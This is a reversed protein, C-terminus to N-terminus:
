RVRELTINGMILSNGKGTKEIQVTVSNDQATLGIEGMGADERFTDTASHTDRWDSVLRQRQWIRFRAGAPTEHFSMRLRYRGEPIGNLMVRLRGGSETSLRLGRDNNIQIDGEPTIEMLQPYFVHRDPFHERLLDGAPQMRSVPATDSYYFAISTYDVPYCNNVDGHEIGHFIDRDFTLKDSKDLAFKAARLFHWLGKQISLRGLSSVITHGQDKLMAIYQYNQRHFHYNDHLFGEDLANYGVSIRELPIHYREHILHRTADSVAIIQDAMALAEAEIAHILPNGGRMGSRDFETAHVHAVLPLGFKRKALMGAEFTLWDHAHVVDPLPQTELYETVYECYNHQIDRISWTQGTPTPFKPDAITASDYATGGYRFLPDINVANLVRMFKISEHKAAYPVVFDIDAGEEALAKSLSYCAVGLGGSHHPPLEWGLM